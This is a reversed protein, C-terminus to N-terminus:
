RAGGILHRGGDVYIVQGTVFDSELLFSVARTIDAPGGHRKLPLPRALGHLYSEDKGVPPLILGPAVANVTIGPAYQLATMTTLTALLHKSLIYSAHTLDSGSVQADIFNVVKGSTAQRAFARTLAFPAWANVTMSHVLSAHTMADLAEPMFESASNVLIHIPGAEACARQILSDAEQPNAFDAAVCFAQGGRSVLSQRLEEARTASHRYHIILRVQQEALALV